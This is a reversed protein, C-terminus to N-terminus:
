ANLIGRCKLIEIRTGAGSNAIKLRLAAPSPQDITTSPRFVFALATSAEAAIQIARLQRYDGHGQWFVVAACGGARLYQEANWHCDTVMADIQVLHDLDIGAANLRAADLTKPSGIIAIRRRARTLAALAPLLLGMEKDGEGDILIETLGGLPWGGEPLLADLSVNGSPRSRVPSRCTRREAINKSTHLAGNFGSAPSLAFHPQLILSTAISM